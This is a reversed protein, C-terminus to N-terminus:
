LSGNMGDSLDHIRGLASTLSNSNRDVDRQRVLGKKGTCPPSVDLCM